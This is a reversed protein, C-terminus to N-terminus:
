EDLSLQFGRISVTTSWDDGGFTDGENILVGPLNNIVALVSTLSAQQDLMDQNVLSNAFTTPKSLVYVEEIKDAAKTEAFAAPIITSAISFALANKRLANM